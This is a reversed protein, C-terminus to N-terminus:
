KKRFWRAPFTYGFIILFGIFIFSLPVLYQTQQTQLTYGTLKSFLWTLLYSLLSLILGLFLTAFNQIGPKYIFQTKEAQFLLFGGVAGTVSLILIWPLVQDHPWPVGALTTIIGATLFGTVAFLIHQHNPYKDGLFKNVLYIGFGVLIFLLSSEM